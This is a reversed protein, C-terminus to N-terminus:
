FEKALRHYIQFLIELRPPTKYPPVLWMLSAEGMKRNMQDAHWDELFWILKEREEMLIKEEFKQLLQQLIKLDYKSKKVRITSRVEMGIPPVFRPKSVM